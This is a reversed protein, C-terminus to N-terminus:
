QGGASVVAPALRTTQATASSASPPMHTKRHKRQLVPRSSTSSMSSIDDDRNGPASRKASMGLMLALDEMLYEQYHLAHQGGHKSHRVLNTIYTRLEHPPRLLMPKHRPQQLSQQVEILLLGKRPDSEPIHLQDCLWERMNEWSQQEAETLVPAPPPLPQAESM